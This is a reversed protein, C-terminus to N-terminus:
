DLDAVVREVRLRITVRQQKSFSTDAQLNGREAGHNLVALRRIDAQAVTQDDVLTATGAVTVYHYEGEVCLSLRADRRLNREKVRGAATNMMIEDGDVVYWVVSQQPTGDRNITALVGFRQQQLFELVPGELKAM